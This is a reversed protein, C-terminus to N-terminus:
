LPARLPKKSSNPIAYSKLDPLFMGGAGFVLSNKIFKNRNM